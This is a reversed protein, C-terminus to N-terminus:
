MSAHVDAVPKIKGPGHCLACSESEDGSYANGPTPDEAHEEFHAMDWLSDHCTGCARRTPSNKWNAGNATSENHCALCNSRPQPYKVASFDQGNILYNGGAMVSPLKESMHLKHVIRQLDVTVPEKGSYPDFTDQNHCTVCYEVAYGKHLKVGGHCTNCSAMVVISRTESVADGNPVFDFTPNTKNGTGDAEQFEMGVRHTLTPDYVVVHADTPHNAPTYTDPSLTASSINHVHTVNRIDGAPEANLLAFIYEWVSDTANYTLVGASASESYGQIVPPQTADKTRSRATYSQWHNSAGGEGPVLKALTFAMGKFAAKDTVPVGNKDMTFRVTVQGSEPDVSVGAIQASMTRKDADASVPLGHSTSIPAYSDDGVHCYFCSNNNGTKYHTKAVGDLGTFTTVGDFVISTHCSRCAVMTPKTKWNDASTGQHCKVCDVVIKATASKVGPYTVASWDMANDADAASLKSNIQAHIQHVMTVFDFGRAAMDPEALLPSHCIVCTKTGTYGGGHGHNNINAGHCSNCAASTVIDKASPLEVAPDSIMFDYQRNIAALGNSASIRMVVRQLHDSNPASSLPTAFTYQYHGQGLEVLTGFPYGTGTREYAWRQWEESDTAAAGPVLEAAFFRMMSATLGSLPVSEHSLTFDIAAYGNADSVSFQSVMPAEPPIPGGLSAADTHVWYGDTAALSTLLSFGKSAAYSAGNDENALGDSTFPIAVSWDGKQWKWLSLPKVGVAALDAIVETVSKQHDGLTGILNWGKVLSNQVVSPASGTITLTAAATMNLWIGQGAHLTTLALAGKAKAYAGLAAGQEQAVRVRWSSATADWTWATAYAQGVSAFVADVHPDLPELPSNVLNWGTDLTISKTAADAVGIGMACAMAMTLAVVKRMGIGSYRMM